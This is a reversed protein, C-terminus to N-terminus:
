CRVAVVMGSKEAGQLFFSIARQQSYGRSMLHHKGYLLTSYILTSFHDDRVAYFHNLYGSHLSKTKIDPHISDDEDEDLLLGLMWQWKKTKPALM